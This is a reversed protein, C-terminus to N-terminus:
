RVMEYFRQVSAENYAEWDFTQQPVDGHTAQLMGRALDQSSREVIVACEDDVAGYVSSFATTVIPLGLTRAELLVM